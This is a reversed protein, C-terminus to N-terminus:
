QSGIIFFPLVATGIKISVNMYVEDATEEDSEPGAKTLRKKKANPGGAM